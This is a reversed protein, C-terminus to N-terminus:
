GCSSLEWLFCVSAAPINRDIQFDIVTVLGMSDELTRCDNHKVVRRGGTTGQRCRALNEFLGACLFDRRDGNRSGYADSSTQCHEFLHARWRTPRTHLAVPPINTMTGATM